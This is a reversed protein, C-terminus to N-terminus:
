FYLKQKGTGIGNIGFGQKFLFQVNNVSNNKIFSDLAFIDFYM